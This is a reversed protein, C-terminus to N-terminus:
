GGLHDHIVRGLAGLLADLRGADADTRTDTVVLPWNWYNFVQVGAFVM